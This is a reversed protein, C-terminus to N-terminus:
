SAESGLAAMVDLGTPLDRRTGDAQDQVADFVLNQLIFGDLTFRQGLFRWGAQTGLDALWDVFTSNIRPAPLEGSRDLFAQWLNGDALAPPDVQLGYVQDMLAALELPGGDDSPGIMFTLVEHITSWAEAASQGGVQARRLALTVVLPLRSPVREPDQFAFHVRGFWTMGRFYQELEHDAAYHGVPRYAGYDDEFDPFLSSNERGSYGMVQEVQRLVLDELSPDLAAEPDFLRLAVSLYAAAQRTDAEAPTGELEPLMGLVEGLAARTLAMMEPRLRERELAKLLDDFALHLAHFAADTTLYYPQGHDRSVAQRIDMFQAERTHLMAFGNQALFALQGDALGNLVQLNGVEGLDVPLDYGVASTSPPMWTQLSAYGFSGEGPIWPALPSSTSESAPLTYTPTAEPGAPVEPAPQCSAVLVLCPVLCLWRDRM